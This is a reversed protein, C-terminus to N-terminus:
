DQRDREADELAAVEDFIEWASRAQEETMKEIAYGVHVMVWDGEAVEGEPMMFLSVDRHVGKAECKALFGDIEQVQMPIALCM